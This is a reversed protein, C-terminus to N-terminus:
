SAISRNWAASSSGSSGNAAADFPLQSGSGPSSNSPTTSTSTPGNLSKECSTPNSSAAAPIPAVKWDGDRVNRTEPLFDPLTGADLAAQREERRKLLRQRTPNFKRQLDALFAVSADTLVEEYRPGWAGRIEVGPVSVKSQVM